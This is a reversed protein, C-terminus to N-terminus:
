GPGDTGTAALVSYITPRSLGTARAMAAKTEGEVSMRRITSIQEAKVKVRRGKKSGGWRKGRARAVAQGARIREGRIENEYEAMSALVNGMLRGAATSLDIRDRVSEFGINRRQLDGFLATLGAATRGLRDLRWCVLKSVRGSALATELQQWGEREMTTGSATDYYWVVEAGDGFAAIWRQLDAEQSATDQQRSSVRVYIAIHQSM